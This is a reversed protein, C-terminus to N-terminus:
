LQKFRVLTFVLVALTLILLMGSPMFNQTKILRILFTLCLVGTVCAILITAAKPNVTLLWVGLLMLLGSVGSMYLSVASGKKWGFYGGVFLFVAYGVFIVKDLVTGGIM